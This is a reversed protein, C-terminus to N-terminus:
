MKYNPVSRTYNEKDTEKDSACKTLVLRDQDVAILQGIRNRGRAMSFPNRIRNHLAALM